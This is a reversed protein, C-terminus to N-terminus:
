WKWHNIKHMAFSHEKEAAQKYYSFAKNKDINCGYLGNLYFEGLEYQADPNGGNAAKEYYIYAKNTNRNCGHTGNLYMQGLKYQADFIGNDAAKRIFELYKTENEYRYHDALAYQAVANGNEAFKKVYDLYEEKDNWNFRDMLWTQADCHGNDAAMKFYKFSHGDDEDDVDIGEYYRVALIFQAETNGQNALKTLTSINLKYLEDESFQIQATSATKLMKELDEAREDTIGLKDKKKKLIRREDDTVNGDEYADELFEVYEQEEESLQPALSKNQVFEELEAVKDDSIKLRDKIKNLMRREDDTVTEDACADEFFELYEVEEKSFNFKGDAVDNASGEIMTMDESGHNEIVLNLITLDHSLELVFDYAKIPQELDRSTLQKVFDITMDKRLINPAVGQVQRLLTDILYKEDNSLKYLKSFGILIPAIVIENNLSNLNNFDKFLKIFLAQNTETEAIIDIPAVLSVPNVGINDMAMKLTKLDAINWNGQSTQYFESTICIMKESETLDTYGRGELVFDDYKITNAWHSLDQNRSLEKHQSKLEEIESVMMKYKERIFKGLATVVNKLQQKTSEIEDSVAEISNAMSVIDKSMFNLKKSLASILNYSMLNQQSLKNIMQQSYYQAKALEQQDRAIISLNHGTISNILRQIIIQNEMEDSRSQVATALSVAQMAWLTTQRSNNKHTAILNDIHTDINEMENPAIEYSNKLVLKLEQMITEKYTM